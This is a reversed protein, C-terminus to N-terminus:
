RQLEKSLAYMAEICRIEARHAGCHASCMERICLSANKTSFSKDTIITNFGHVQIAEPISPILVLAM